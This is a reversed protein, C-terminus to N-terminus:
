QRTTFVTYGVAAGALAILSMSLVLAGKVGNILPEFYGLVLEVRGVVPCMADSIVLGKRETAYDGHGPAPMEARPDYTDSLSSV